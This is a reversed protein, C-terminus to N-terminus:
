DIRQATVRYNHGDVTITIVSDYIVPQSGPAGIVGGLFRAPMTAEFINRMTASTTGRWFGSASTAPVVATATGDLNDIWSVSSLLAFDVALTPTFWLAPFDGGSYAYTIEAFGSETGGGTVSISDPVAGVTVTGGTVYGFYNTSDPGIRFSGNTGGAYAVTGPSTLVAYSGYTSWSCGSAFLTAASNLFTMYSPDPNASGDPALTGWAKPAKSALGSSLARWLLDTAGPDISSNGGVCVTQTSSDAGILSISITRNTFNVSIWANSNILASFLANTANDINSVLAVSDVRQTIAELVKFDFRITGLARCGDPSSGLTAVAPFSAANAWWYFTGATFVADIGCTEGYTAYIEFPDFIVANGNAIDYSYVGPRWQTGDAFVCVFDESLSVSVTNSDVLTPTIAWKNGDGDFWAEGFSNVLRMADTSLRPIKAIERDIDQTTAAGIQAATVSHPNDTRLAHSSAQLVLGTVGSLQADMNTGLAQVGNALANSVAQLDTRTPYYTIAPPPSGPAPIGITGRMTLKGFVRPTNLRSGVIFQYDYTLAGSDYDPVWAALLVGPAPNTAAVERYENTGLSADRYRFVVPQNTIAVPVTGQVLRPMLDATEGRWVPWDTQVPRDYQVDWRIPASNALALSCTLLLLYSTFLSFRM